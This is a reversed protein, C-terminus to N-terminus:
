SAPSGDRKAIADRAGQPLTAYFTSTEKPVTIMQTVIQNVLDFLARATDTNDQLDMNGPHVANNGVVRLIDLANQVRPLLGLKVLSAIDTDIHKGPQGLEKCLKQVALRLLAAAGRPSVPLISRAEEYDRAIDDPLDPNPPPASSSFSWEKSITHGHIPSHGASSFWAQHAYAGCDFAPCHFAEKTHEPPVFPINSLIAEGNQAVDPFGNPSWQMKSNMLAGRRWDVGRQFTTYAMFDAIMLPDYENKGAFKISELLNFGVKSLDNAEETFAREADGAHKHGSEAIVSLRSRLVRDNHGFRRIIEEVISVLTLRMCLAYRTDIRMRKPNDNNRYFADYETNSLTIVSTHTIGQAVIKSLESILSMGKEVSWGSFQGARAKLDKTHLVSFEFSKKIRDLEVQFARWQRDTALAGAMTTVPSGEHTGSEDFYATFRMPQGEFTLYHRYPSLLATGHKAVWVVVFTAGGLPAVFSVWHWVMWCGGEGDLQAPVVLLQELFQHVEKGGWFVLLGKFRRMARCARVALRGLWGHGVSVSVPAERGRHSRRQAM